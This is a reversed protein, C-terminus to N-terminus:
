IVSLHPHRQSLCNLATSVFAPLTCPEEGTRQLGIYTSLQATGLAKLASQFLSSVTCDASLTCEMVLVRQIDKTGELTSVYIVYHSILYIGSDGYYYCSYWTNNICLM